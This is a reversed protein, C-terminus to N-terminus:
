ASVYWGRPLPARTPGSRCMRCSHNSHRLTWLRMLRPVCNPTRRVREYAILQTERTMTRLTTM